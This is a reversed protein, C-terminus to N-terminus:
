RGCIDCLAFGVTQTVSYITLRLKILRIVDTGSFYVSKLGSLDVNDISLGQDNIEEIFTNYTDKNRITSCVYAVKERDTPSSLKNKITKVLHPLITPDFVVDAAVVVEVEDEVDGIRTWDLASVNGNDINNIDLTHQAAILVSQHHDTLTVQECMHSIVGGLLGVGCGLELVKKNQFIHSNEAAWQCMALCAQWTQLGTTGKSCMAVTERTALYHAGGDFTYIKYGIQSSPQSLAVSLSDYVEELVEGEVQNIWSKIFKQVYTNAM